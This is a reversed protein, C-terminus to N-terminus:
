THLFRATECLERALFAANYLIRAVLGILSSFLSISRMLILSRLKFDVVASKLRPTQGVHRYDMMRPIWRVIVQRRRLNVDRVLSTSPRADTIVIDDALVARHLLASRMPRNTRMCVPVVTMDDANMHAPVKLLCFWRILLDFRRCHQQCVQASVVPQRDVAVVDDPM